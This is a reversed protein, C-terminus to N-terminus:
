LNNATINNTQNTGAVVSEAYNGIIICNQTPINANDGYKIGNYGSTEKSTQYIRNGMVTFNFWGYMYIGHRGCGQIINNSCIGDSFTGGIAHRNFDKAINNTIIVNYSHKDTDVGLVFRHDGEFGGGTCNNNNIVVGDMSNGAGNGIFVFTGINTGVNGEIISNKSGLLHYFKEVNELVNNRIIINSPIVNKKYSHCGICGTTTKINKFSNSEITINSCATDDYKSTWPYQESGGMYDIQIVETANDRNVTGYDEFKNFIVYCNKCGNLEINHWQNFGKFNCKEIIINEAHGFGVPTITHITGKGDFTINSISINSSGNYEAEQGTLKNTFVCNLSASSCDFEVNGIGKIVTYSPIKYTKLPKYYGPLIKITTGQEANNLAEELEDLSSVIVEINNDFKDKIEQVDSRINTINLENANNKAELDSVRTKINPIETKLANIENSTNANFIEIDEIEESIESLKDLVITIKDDEIIDENDNNDNNDNNDSSVKTEKVFYYLDEQATVHEDEDVVSWVVTHLGVNKLHEKELVIYAIGNASDKHGALITDITKDDYIVSVMVDYGTINLPKKKDDVFQTELEIGYDNQTVIIQKAM